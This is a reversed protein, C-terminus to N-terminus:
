ATIPVLGLQQMFGLSDSWEWDEVVKGDALRHIVIATTSVSKNTAPVDGFPSLHLGSCTYRTAVKDGSSFMDEIVMHADPFANLYLTFGQKLGERDMDAAGPSHYVYNLAYLEDVVSVNKLDFVEHFARRMIEMNAEASM